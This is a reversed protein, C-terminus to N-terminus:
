DNTDTARSAEVCQYLGYRDAPNLVRVEGHEVLSKVMRQVAMRDNQDLMGLRDNLQRMTRPTKLNALLQQQSVVVNSRRQNRRPSREATVGVRRPAASGATLNTLHEQVGVCVNNVILLHQGAEAIIDSACPVVTVDFEIKPM